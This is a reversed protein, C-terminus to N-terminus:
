LEHMLSVLLHPCPSCALKNTVDLRKGGTSFEETVTYPAQWPMTNVDSTFVLCTERALQLGERERPYSPSARSVLGPGGVTTGVNESRFAYDRAGCGEIM